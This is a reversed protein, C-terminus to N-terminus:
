VLYLRKLLRASDEVGRLRQGVEGFRDATM